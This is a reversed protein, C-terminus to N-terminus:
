IGLSSWAKFQTLEYFNYGDSWRYTEHDVAVQQVVFPIDSSDKVLIPGEIKGINKFCTNWTVRTDWKEQAHLEGDCM